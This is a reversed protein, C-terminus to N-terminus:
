FCELGVTGDGRPAALGRTADSTDSRAATPTCRTRWPASVGLPSPMVLTTPLFLCSVVILELVSEDNDSLDVTDPLFSGEDAVASLERLGVLLPVVDELARVFPTLEWASRPTLRLALSEGLLSRSSRM